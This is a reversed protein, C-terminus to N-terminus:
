KQCQSLAISYKVAKNVLFVSIKAGGPLIPKKTLFGQSANLKIVEHGLRSVLTMEILFLYPRISKRNSCVSFDTM